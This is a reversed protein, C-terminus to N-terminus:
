RMVNSLAYLPIVAVNQYVSFNELSTRIAYKSKKSEMFLYLSQMSGQTGAKVEVPIIEGSRTLLYDVEAMANRSARQWYYMEAPIEYPSYKVLELGAFVESLGGKNVFDVDNDLIVDTADMSLLTQMLGIDLFLYKQYKYNAEAGLPIGNASSHTVPIILGALSLLSLAQKVQRAEYQPDVQSYVFKEGAQLAVSRLTKTLIESSIRTRYKKFDDHYTLIIDRHVASCKQFDKTHVWAAVSEPMGGVLYFSRLEKVLESHLLETMPNEASAANKMALLADSGQALLFEDFSFPYMFLSHIRGVGFSPLENLAFELLSGAAVVHLDPMEEYFYRLAVIARPCVQIEDLFILTKGAVVPMKYIASLQNCINLINLDEGFLDQLRINKELNAEIFYKFKRGLERVASSKGVQRAGRLLLPKHVSSEKWELLDKDIHRRFYSM